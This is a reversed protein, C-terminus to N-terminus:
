PGAPPKREQRVLDALTTEDVFGAIRGALTRWRDHVPCPDTDNCEPRGLLCRRDTFGPQVPEVIRALTLTEPAVALRFGGGRGRESALVGARALQHLIKSLYNRPIGLAEAITGVQSPEDAHEALYIAARVAYQSTQSLLM